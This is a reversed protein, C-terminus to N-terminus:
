GSGLVMWGVCSWSGGLGVVGLEIFIGIVLRSLGM